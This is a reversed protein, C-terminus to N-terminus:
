FLDRVAAIDYDTVSAALMTAGHEGGPGDGRFAPPSEQSEWREFINIRGPQLLDASLAFDLCGPTARAQRVVSARNALYRERDAEAVLLHGAVIVM